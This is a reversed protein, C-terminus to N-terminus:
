GERRGVSPVEQADDQHGGAKWDFPSGGCAGHRVRGGWADGRRERRRRVGAVGAVTAAFISPSTATLDTEGIMTFSRM